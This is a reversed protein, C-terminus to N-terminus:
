AGHNKFARLAIKPGRQEANYFLMFDKFPREAMWEVLAHHERANLPVAASKEPGRQKFPRHYTCFKLVYSLQKLPESLTSRVTPRYFDKGKFTAEFRRLRAENRAGFVVINAHLVWSRQAQRYALEYGGIVSTHDLGARELRKRLAHKWRVPNLAFINDRDATELMVTVIDIRQETEEVLRLLEGIFFRRFRRACRPCYPADCVIDGERCDRLTKALRRSYTHFSRLLNESRESEWLVDSLTEFRKGKPLSQPRL